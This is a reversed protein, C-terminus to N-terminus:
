RRRPLLQDFLTESQKLNGEAVLPGFEQRVTDVFLQHIDIEM